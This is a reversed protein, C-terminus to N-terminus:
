GHEQHDDVAVDPVGDGHGENRDVIPQQDYKTVLAVEPGLGALQGVPNQDLILDNDLSVGWDELVKDLADNDATPHGLKIPPDLLFMARGGNEVFKKIM